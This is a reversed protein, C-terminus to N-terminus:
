KNTKFRLKAYEEDLSMELLKIKCRYNAIRKGSKSDTAITEIKIIGIQQLHRINKYVSSIPIQNEKAIDVVSKATKMTSKIVSFSVKNALVSCLLMFVIEDQIVGDVDYHNDINSSNVTM